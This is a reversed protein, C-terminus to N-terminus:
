KKVLSYAFCARGDKIAKRRVMKGADIQAELQKRATMCSVGWRTAADEVTIEGERIPSSVDLGDLFGELEARVDAADTKRTM